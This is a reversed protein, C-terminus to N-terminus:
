LWLTGIKRNEIRNRRYKNFLLLSGWFAVFFDKGSKIDGMLACRISEYTFMFFLKTMKRAILKRSLNINLLIDAKMARLVAGSKAANANGFGDRDHIMKASPVVGIKGKHFLVRQAYQEDEGYHFFIPDFGGITQITKIPLLWGAAPVCDVPYVDKVKSLCMDEVISSSVGGIYDKYQGDLTVRNGHVHLPSLIAYQENDPQTAVDLLQQFMDPYVYADQNLLFVYDYKQELAMRLGVNNAQGFGLNKESQVVEVEPYHSRIFLVTNDTSGNDVVLTHVSYTSSRLSDLCQQIWKM